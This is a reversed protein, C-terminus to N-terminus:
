IQPNYNKTQIDIRDIGENRSNLGILSANQNDTVVFM